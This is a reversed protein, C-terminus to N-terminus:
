QNVWVFRSKKLQAHQKKLERAAAGLSVAEAQPFDSAPRVGQASTYSASGLVNQEQSMPAYTAHEPHSSFEYIQPQSNVSSAGFQAFAATASLLCLVFLAKKMALDGSQPPLSPDDAAFAASQQSRWAPYSCIRYWVKGPCFPRKRPNARPLRLEKCLQPSRHVLCRWVHVGCM